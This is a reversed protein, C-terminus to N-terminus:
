VAGVDGFVPWNAAVEGDDQLLWAREIEGTRTQSRAWDAQPEIGWLAAALFGTRHFHPDDKAFMAAFRHAILIRDSPLERIVRAITTHEQRTM